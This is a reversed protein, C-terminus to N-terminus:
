CGAQAVRFSYSLYFFDHWFFLVFIQSTKKHFFEVHPSLYQWYAGKWTKIKQMIWSGHRQQKKKVSKQIKEPNQGQQVSKPRERCIIIGKHFRLAKWLALMNTNVLFDIQHMQIMCFSSKKFSKDLFYAFFVFILFFDHVSLKEFQM